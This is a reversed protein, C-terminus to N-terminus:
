GLGDRRKERNLWLQVFIGSVISCIFSVWLWFVDREDCAMGFVFVSLLGM